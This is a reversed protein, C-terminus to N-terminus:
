VSEKSLKCSAVCVVSPAMAPVALTLVELVTEQEEPMFALSGVM